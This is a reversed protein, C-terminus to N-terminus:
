LEAAARVARLADDDHLRPIGFVALLSDGMVREVQAGHRELVLRASDASRALFRELAEPDRAGDRDAQPAIAALLVTVRKRAARRTSAPPAVAAPADAQEPPLVLGPDQALIQRELEKLAPGPEIGIEEVLTRRANSYAQLAEAQRGSRYLALMLQARPRERLPHEDILREVEPVLEAHRGRALDADIRDELTALRLEDLRKVEAAPSGEYPVDALPEGRWLALAQELLQARAGADPTARAQARLKEFRALDLEDEDLRLLYGPPRTIVRERGLLKRLASVHGHLVTAATEPGGEPWLEEVLRESAVVENAALLLTALLLRQRGHRLPLPTDAARVELPGLIRFDLEGSM